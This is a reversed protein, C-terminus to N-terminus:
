FLNKEYNSIISFSNYIYKKFTDEFKKSKQNIYQIIM